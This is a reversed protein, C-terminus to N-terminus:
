RDSSSGRGAPPRQAVLHRLSPDLGISALLVAGDVLMFVALEHLGGTTSFRLQMDVLFLLLGM